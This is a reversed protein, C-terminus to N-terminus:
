RANFGQVNNTRRPPENWRSGDSRTTYALRWVEVSLERNCRECFYVDDVFERISGDDRKISDLMKYIHVPKLVDQYNLGKDKCEKICYPCFSYKSTPELQKKSIMRRNM